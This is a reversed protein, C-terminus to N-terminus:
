KSTEGTIYDTLDGVDHLITKFFTKVFRNEMGPLTHDLLKGDTKTEQGQLIGLPQKIKIESNEKVIPLLVM